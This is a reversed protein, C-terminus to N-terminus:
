DGRGDLRLEQEAQYWNAVDQGPVCGKSMWISLARRAIKEHTIDNLAAIVAVDKVKVQARKGKKSQESSDGSVVVAKAKTTKKEKMIEM